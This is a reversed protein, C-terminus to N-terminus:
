DKRPVLTLKVPEEPTGKLNWMNGTVTDLMVFVKNSFKRIENFAFRGSFQKAPETEPQVILNGKSDEYKIPKFNEPTDIAGILRWMRGTRTDVLYHENSLEFFVYGGSSSVQKTKEDPIKVDYAYTFSTVVLLVLFTVGIVIVQKM